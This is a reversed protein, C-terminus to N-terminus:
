SICSSQSSWVMSGFWITWLNWSVNWLELNCIVLMVVSFSIDNVYCCLFLENHTEGRSYSLRSRTMKRFFNLKLFGKKPAIKSWNKNKYNTTKKEVVKELSVKITLAFLNLWHHDSTMVFRFLDKNYCKCNGKNQCSLFLCFQHEFKRAIIIIYRVSRVQPM